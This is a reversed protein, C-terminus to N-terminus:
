FRVKDGEKIDYDITYGANTEIVYKAPEGSPMSKDSFPKANQYISVIVGEANVYIIDLALPTNAMWFSQEEEVDFFFVMGADRPMSHVDMLGQSRQEDTTASAYRFTSIENDNKDLFTLTDSFDYKIGQSDLTSETKSKEECGVVLLIFIALFSLKTNFVRFSM